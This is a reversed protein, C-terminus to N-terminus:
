TSVWNKRWAASSRAPSAVACNRQALRWGRPSRERRRSCGSGRAKTDIEVRRHEVKSMPNRPPPPVAVHLATLRARCAHALAVAQRCAARAEPSGDIAVLIHAPPAIM